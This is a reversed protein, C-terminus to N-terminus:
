SRLAFAADLIGDVRSGSSSLPLTVSAVRTGFPHWDEDYILFAPEKTRVVREYLASVFARYQADPIQEAFKGTLDFGTIAALTTGDIRFRFRHPTEDTVEVLCLNGLCGSLELPDIDSRGPMARGARKSLWYEYVQLVKPHAIETSALEQVVKM